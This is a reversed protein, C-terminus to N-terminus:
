SIGVYQTAVRCGSTLCDRQLLGSNLEDPVTNETITRNGLTSHCLAEGYSPVWVEM